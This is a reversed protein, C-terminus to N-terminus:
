AVKRQLSKFSAVAAKVALETPVREGTSGTVYGDVRCQAYMWAVSETDNLPGGHALVPIQSSLGKVATVIEEVQAVAEALSLGSNGGASNGATVGGVMASILTAGAEVFACAEVPNFAYALTIFGRKAAKRILEVEKNFGWGMADLQNKLDDGYMGIFPENTVGQVGALLARDLLGDVTARPDHAGLGIIVPTRGANALVEPALSFSLENCNDYPLFAMATPLGQIRYRATNYTALLDAGGLSAGRATLGSGVGAVLLKKGKQLQGHLDKLFEDVDAM